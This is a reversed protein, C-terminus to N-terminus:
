VVSKRDERKLNSASILIHDLTKTPLIRKLAAFLYTPFTVLYRAKPKTSELAHLIKPMVALPELTFPVTQGEKNLRKEEAQYQDHFRSMKADIHKYFMKLSNHRFRSTIPGPEILSVHINTNMLELRLTDSLGELAYKSAIYAGRFPMAVFGLVSSIQIIRGYGQEHMVPLLRNTLEVLGFFNTDFQKQLANQTLDEVAGPQGYGANNILAFLNGGTKRLIIEVAIRISKSNSVDLQISYLGQAALNEVDKQKRASAFVTYGRKQLAHATYLGIGSSCGTILISKNNM